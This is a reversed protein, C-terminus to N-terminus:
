KKEKDAAEKLIGLEEATLERFAGPCLTEDLVIGGFSVRKLARVGNGVAHLMRKVQHFRGEQITLLIQRPAIVEVKAPLTPKDDGIDVGQELQRIDDESLEAELDVLYGKNVHKKPSLLDHALAGDDTLLLLGETDKDLRGIPFLDRGLEPPLLDIVTQATRDVTASVTGGPKNLLYYHFSQYQLPKGQFTVTDTEESVQFDAQRIVAGNVTVTGQRILSKVQSRTGIHLECLYKDLRM